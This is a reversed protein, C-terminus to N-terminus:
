NNSSHTYRAENRLSYQNVVKDTNEIYQQIDHSNQVFFVDITM